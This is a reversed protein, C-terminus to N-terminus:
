TGSTHHMSRPEDWKTLLSGACHRRVIKTIVHDMQLQCLVLFDCSILYSGDLLKQMAISHVHGM